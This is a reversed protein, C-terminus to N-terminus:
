CLVAHNDKGLLEVTRDIVEAHGTIRTRGAGYRDCLRDAEALIRSRENREATALKKDILSFRPEYRGAEKDFSDGGILYADDIDIIMADCLVGIEKMLRDDISAIGDIDTVIFVVMRRRLKEAAYEVCERLGERPEQRINRELATM